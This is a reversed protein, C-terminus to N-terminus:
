GARADSAPDSISEATLVLVQGTEHRHARAAIRELFGLVPLRAEGGTYILTSVDIGPVGVDLLEDLEDLVQVQALREAWRM